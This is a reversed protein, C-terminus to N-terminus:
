LSNNQNTLFTAKIAQFPKNQNIKNFFNNKVNYIILKNNSQFLKKSKMKVKQFLKQRFVKKKNQKTPQKTDNQKIWVSATSVFQYKLNLLMM